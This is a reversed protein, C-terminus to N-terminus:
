MLGEETFAVVFSKCLPSRVIDDVGFEIVRVPINHKKTIDLLVQLGSTGKIDQQLIDGSVVVKTNDGIRTLFMIMESPTLNAAEDLIIFASQFSRGRMYELPAYEINGNKVATEVVGKGMIGNFTELVPMLWPTFKDEMDGKLYGLGRGVPVNPRTLIIRDIDKCLYKNAAVVSAMYTKGTGSYGVAIVMDDSNLADLYERQKETQPSLAVLKNKAEVDAGKYTTKRRTTM